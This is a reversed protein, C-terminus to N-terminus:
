PTLRSILADAIRLAYDATRVEGGAIKAEGGTDYGRALLGILAVAAFYERKTLGNLFAARGAAHPFASSAGDIM